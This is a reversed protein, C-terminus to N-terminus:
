VITHGPQAISITKPGAGLWVDRTLIETKSDSERLVRVQTHASTEVRFGACRNARTPLDDFADRPNPRHAFYSSIEPMGVIASVIAHTFGKAGWTPSTGSKQDRERCLSTGVRDRVAEKLKRDCRVARVQDRRVAVLRAPHGM